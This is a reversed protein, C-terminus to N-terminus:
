RGISLWYIFVTQLVSSNIVVYGKSLSAGGTSNYPGNNVIFTTNATIPHLTCTFFGHETKWATPLAIEFGGVGAPAGVSVSGYQIGVPSSSPIGPFQVINRQELQSIKGELTSLRQLLRADKDNPLPPQHRAM